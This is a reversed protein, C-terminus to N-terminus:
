EKVKNKKAKSEKVEEQENAKAAKSDKEESSTKALIWGRGQLTQTDKENVDISTPGNPVEPVSRTMRVVEM